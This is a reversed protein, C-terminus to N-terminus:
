KNEKGLTPAVSVLIVTLHPAAARGWNLIFCSASTIEASEQPLLTKLYIYTSIIISLYTRFASHSVLVYVRRSQSRNWSHCEHLQTQTGGMRSVFAGVRLLLLM